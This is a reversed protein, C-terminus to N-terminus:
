ASRRRAIVAHVEALLRGVACDRKSLFADAGARAGKARQAETDAASVLIIPLARTEQRARLAETLEIGGMDEMAVDCVVVDYNSRRLFELAQRGSSAAHVVFGGAELASRHLARATLSDDVVLARWAQRAGEAGARREEEVLWDSRLVLMLEGRAMTAAGQYAAVQRVERPLPRIVMERDGLVDDVLLALRIGKAQLVLVPQGAIPALPQRLALLAGMDEIPVLQDRHRLLTREGGRVFDAEAPAVVGEIALLPIGFLQEGCRVLFVPSSGLEASLTVVFRTGQGATSQVEVQGGLTQVQTRVVDLGVGRGSTETVSGATSFGPRFVLQHLQGANMAEAEATTAVTRRVAERRILETDFGRGDDAVELFLVNGLLEVRIVLAGERHKGAKQREEPKEIGHDIANRVLHVLPSKLAEIVRRDLSVEAGVMSLKAHKGLQRCLDRVTRQLPDLVTRMPLTSISKLGDELSGVVDAAEEGDAMLAQRVAVLRARSEASAALGAIAAVQEIGADLEHAREEIRLRIERLREVERLLASVQATDVRWTGEETEVATNGPIATEGTAPEASVTKGTAAADLLQLIQDLPETPTKGSAHRKLRAVFLDSAQLLADVAEPPLIKKEKSFRSVLNEMRHALDSLDWLGATASSGKLTHLTRAVKDFLKDLTKSEGGKEIGLLEKSLRACLEPGEEAFAKLVAAKIDDDAAM